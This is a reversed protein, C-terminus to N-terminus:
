ELIADISSLEGNADGMRDQSVAGTVPLKDMDFSFIGTM